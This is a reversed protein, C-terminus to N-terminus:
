MYLYFYVIFLFFNPPFEFIDTIRRKKKQKKKGINGVYINQKYTDPAVEVWVAWTGNDNIGIEYINVINGHFSSLKEAYSQGNNFSVFLDEASVLLANTSAAIYQVLYAKNNSSAPGNTTAWTWSSSSSSSSGRIVKGSAGAYFHGGSGYALGYLASGYAYSLSWSSGQNTSLYLGNYYINLVFISGTSDVAVEGCSYSSISPGSFSSWSTGNNKSYTVCGSTSTGSYSSGVIVSGSPSIALHQISTVLHQSWTVGHNLSVYVSTGTSTVVTAGSHSTVLGYYFDSSSTPGSSPTYFNYGGDHSYYVYGPSGAAYVYSGTGDMAVGGWSSASLRTQMYSSSFTPAATPTTAELNIERLNEHDEEVELEAAVAAFYSVLIIVSIWSNM